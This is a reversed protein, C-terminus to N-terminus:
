QAGISVANSPRGLYTLRVPIAPGPAVGGPVLFNVQNYGPYDSAGFYLVQALRGGISVQPPIVGGDLLSTTYMALTEGAVAPNTASAVQGTVADWIAGQGTGDGSLSFLVPAPVLVAPTYVEASALAYTGTTYSNSFSGGTILVRGDALLTAQHSFRGSQMNGAVFFARAAPSYLEAIPTTGYFFDKLGGTILVTADPLTTATHFFRPTAMYGTATFTGASPDYTESNSLPNIDGTDEYGGSGGTLLVKGDLLPAAARGLIETPKTPGLYFYPATM